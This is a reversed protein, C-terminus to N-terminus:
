LICPLLYNGVCWFFLLHMPYFVYFFYKPQRGRQGNYLCIAILGPIAFLERPTLLVLLVGALACAAIRHDRLWYFAVIVAVGVAGYDTNMLEALGAAALFAAIGALERGPLRQWTLIVLYGLLLTWFVNSYDPRWPTNFFALDFPVESLLAFLFMRLAYRKPNRTHIAGEAIFFCFIPFASRGIHRLTLDVKLLLYPDGSFVVPSNHRLNMMFVEILSAGVHDIVMVAIAIWKLVSGSLLGKREGKM